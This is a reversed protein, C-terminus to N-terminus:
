QDGFRRSWEAPALIRLLREEMASLTKATRLEALVSRVRLQDALAEAVLIRPQMGVEAARTSVDVWADLGDRAWESFSQELDNASREWREKKDAPTRFQVPKERRLADPDQPRGAGPARRAGPPRGPKRADTKKATM